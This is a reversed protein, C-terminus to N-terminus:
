RGGITETKNTAGVGKSCYQVEGFGKPAPWAGLIVDPKKQRIM